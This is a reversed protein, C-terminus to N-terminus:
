PAIERNLTTQFAQVATYFNSAQTDTLGDGLSSFSCENTSFGFGNSALSINVNGIATTSTNTNTGLLSNNKFVKRLSNSTESGVMFGATSSSAYIGENTDDGFTVGAVGSSKDCIRLALTGASQYARRLYIEASFANATSNTRSYFSLHLNGNTFNDFANFNTDMLASTGNPTVGTSSFTWGTTFTGTFSSSKLNQSCAAQRQATTGAGGGVMPYIAKMKTWIGDDKMQVVLTNVAEQETTSLSGGATAVRDFFAQADSDYVIQVISSGIIGHSALIM